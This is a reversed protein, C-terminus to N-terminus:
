QSPTSRHFRKSNKRSHQHKGSNKKEPPGTLLLRLSPRSRPIRSRSRGLELNHKSDVLFVGHPIPLQRDQAPTNVLNVLPAKLSAILQLLFLPGPNSPRRNKVPPPRSIGLRSAPQEDFDIGTRLRTDFDLRLLARKLERRALDRQPPWRLKEIPARGNLHKPEAIKHGLCFGVVVEGRDRDVLPLM